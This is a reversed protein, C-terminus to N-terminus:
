KFLSSVPSNRKAHETSELRCPSGVTPVAPVAPLGPPYQLETLNCHFQFLSLDLAKGYRSFYGRDIGHDFRKMDFDLWLDQCKRTASFFM